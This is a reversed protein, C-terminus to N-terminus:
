GVKKAYENQYYHLACWGADFRGWKTGNPEDKYEYVNILTGSAVSGIKNDAAVQPTSRVNLSVLTKWVDYEPEPEPEPEPEVDPNTATRILSDIDSTLKEGMETIKLYMADFEAQLLRYADVDKRVQNLKETDVLMKTMPVEPTEGGGGNLFEKMEELTGNYIDIDGADVRSTGWDTGKITHSFQWISWSVRGDPLKPAKYHINETNWTGDALPWALWLPLNKGRSKWYTEYLSINTYLFVIKGTKEEIQRIWQLGKDAFSESLTNYASEWDCAIADWEFEAKDLSDLFEEVQLDLTTNSDMYYYAMKIPAKAVEPLYKTYLPDEYFVGNYSHGVRVVIFDLPYISNALVFGKDYKSIDRGIAKRM